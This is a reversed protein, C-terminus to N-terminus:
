NNEESPLRAGKSEPNGVPEIEFKTPRGARIRTRPRSYRAGSVSRPPEMVTISPRTDVDRRVPGTHQRTGARARAATRLPPQQYLPWFGADHKYRRSSTEACGRQDSQPNSVAARGPAITLPLERRKISSFNSSRAQPCGGPAAAGTLSPRPPVRALSGAQHASSATRRRRHPIAGDREM